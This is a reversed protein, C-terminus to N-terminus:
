KFQQQYAAPTVGYRQKFLGSFHTRNKFGVEYYVTSPKVKTDRLLHCSLELRQEILWKQPSLDSIKSFDRKFTALSRGTYSAFEEMTLDEMYHKEMFALLDIKWSEYFDFLTPYMREDIDLLCKIAENQKERITEEDLDIGQDAYPKLSMFLSDVKINHPLPVGPSYIPHSDMPLRKGTLNESFFDRLLKNDLAIAISRFPTDGDSMKKMGALCNRHWFIYDGAHAKIHETETEITLIGSYVMMLGHTPLRKDCFMDHTIESFFIANNCNRINISDTM